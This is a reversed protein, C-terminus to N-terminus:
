LLASPISDSDVVENKIFVLQPSGLLWAKHFTGIPFQFILRKPHNM